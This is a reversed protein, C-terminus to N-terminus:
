TFTTNRKVFLNLYYENKCAIKNECYKFNALNYFEVARPDCDIVISPPIPKDKYLKVSFFNIYIKSTLPLGIYAIEEIDPNFYENIKDRHTAAGFDPIFFFNEQDALLIEFRIDGMLKLVKDAIELYGTINSYKVHKKYELMEEIGAKLKPVANQAIEKFTDFIADDMEKKHRPTRMECIVGYKAFYSIAAMVEDSCKRHLMFEEIIITNKAFDNEFFDNLEKELSVHDIKGDIYRSNSFEESFLSKTTIKSYFNDKLKDYIFIKKEINNFFNKIHIKSVFHHNKPISM